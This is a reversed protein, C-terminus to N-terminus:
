TTKWNINLEDLRQQSPKYGGYAAKKYLSIAQEFESDNELLRALNHAALLMGEEAANKYWYKALGINKSFREGSEYEKGLLIQAFRDGANAAQLLWKEALALNEPLQEGKLLMRGLHYANEANGLQITRDFWYDALQLDIEVLKTKTLSPRGSLYLIALEEYARANGLDAAQVFWHIAEAVEEPTPSFKLMEKGLCLSARGQVSNAFPRVTEADVLIPESAIKKLLSMGAFREARCSENYSSSWEDLHM